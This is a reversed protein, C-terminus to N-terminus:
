VVLHVAALWANAACSTLLLWADVALSVGSSYSVKMPCSTKSLKSSQRLLIQTSGAASLVALLSWGNRLM